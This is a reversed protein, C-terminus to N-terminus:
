FFFNSFQKKIFFPFFFKECFNKFRGVNRDYYLNLENPNCNEFDKLDSLSIWTTEGRYFLFLYDIPFKKLDITVMKDYNYDCTSKYTPNKRIKEIEESLFNGM